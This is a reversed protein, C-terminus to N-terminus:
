HSQYSDYFHEMSNEVTLSGPPLLKDTPTNRYPWEGEPWVDEVPLWGEKGKEDGTSIQVHSRSSLTEILVVDTASPVTFIRGNDELNLVTRRDGARLSRMMEDYSSADTALFVPLFRPDDTRYLRAQGGPTFVYHSPKGEDTQEDSTQMTSPRNDPIAKQASQHPSLLYVVILFLFFALLGVLIQVRKLM